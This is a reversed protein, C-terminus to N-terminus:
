KEDKEVDRKAKAEALQAEYEARLEAQREASNLQLHGCINELETKFDLDLLKVVIYLEVAIITSDAYMQNGLNHSNVGVYGAMANQSNIHRRILQGFKGYEGKKGTKWTEKISAIENDYDEFVIAAMHNIDADLSKGILYLDFLYLNSKCNRLASIKARPISTKFYIEKPEADSDRLYKDM